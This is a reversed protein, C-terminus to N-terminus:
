LLLLSELENWNSVEIFPHPKRNWPQKVLIPEIGVKHIDFCTELRDEVFYKKNKSLLIDTKAEFAGTAIIEIIKPNLENLQKLIWDKMPGITPRATIFLLEGSKRGIKTLTTVSSGIPNLIFEYNGTTIRDIIDKIIDSNMDLCEELMYATLSDYDITIDYEKKAIDLFLNMTDAFVGDIDFAIDKPNIM